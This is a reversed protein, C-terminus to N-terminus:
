LGQWMQRVYSGTYYSQIKTRYQCEVWYVVPTGQDQHLICMTEGEGYQGMGNLEIIKFLVICPFTTELLITTSLVLNREM